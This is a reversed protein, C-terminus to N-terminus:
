CEASIFTMLVPVLLSPSTKVLFFFVSVRCFEVSVPLKALPFTLSFTQPTVLCQGNKERESILRFLKVFRTNKDFLLLGNSDATRM